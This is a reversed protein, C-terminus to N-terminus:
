SATSSAGPRREVCTIDDITYGLVTAVSLIRPEWKLREAVYSEVDPVDRILRAKELEGCSASYHGKFENLEDTRDGRRTEEGPLGIELSKLLLEGGRRLRTMASSKALWGFREPDLATDTLTVLDLVVFCVRSVSYRPDPFRFYFLLPYFHHAEKVRALSSALNALESYGGQFKGDSGLGALARAADGTCDTLTDVTLAVANRERLASYVQVLYSLILSLVSTGILSNLLYLIRTGPTHPSYDGGGVISLSNGAVLLATVFDKPGTGSSPRIAGGLEPQIILASGVTLGLSWFVILLIIILPGGFSLVVGRHRGFLKSLARVLSWIFRNWHPALLGTGARAYLVTLFIDALFILVIAGGVLQEILM